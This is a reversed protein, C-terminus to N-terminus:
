YHLIDLILFIFVNSTQYILFSIKRSSYFIYSFVSLYDKLSLRLKFRLM